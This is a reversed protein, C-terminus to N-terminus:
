EKKNFKRPKHKVHFFNSITLTLKHFDSLGTEYVSSSHFSKPHNTLIHDILTSNDPNKFCTPQKILYKLNYSVWFEELYNNTMEANFDGIVIFNEYKSSYFDLNKSLNATDNQILGVNPNYSGSILWKRSRLNIEVFINHINGSPDINPLLKSPIDKRVFLMLGDDHKTRDPRYLPTFRELIFQNLPFTDDLKTESIRM